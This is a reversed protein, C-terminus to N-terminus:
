FYRVARVSARKYKSEGYQSGNIFSQVWTSVEDKDTSSWYSTNSFSESDKKHIEYMLNLEDKSPLIWDDYGNYELNECLQVAFQQTGRLPLPFTINETITKTNILGAGISAKLGYYKNMFGSWAINAWETTVPAVEIFRWSNSSDGKDYIVIGGAPGEDGVKIM